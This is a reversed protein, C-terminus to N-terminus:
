FRNTLAPRNKKSTIRIVGNRGKPGYLKIATEDKFVDVAAIDEPDIAAISSVAVGDLYILPQLKSEKVKIAVFRNGTAAVSDKALVPTEAKEAAETKVSVEAIVPVETMTPAINIQAQLAKSATKVKRQMATRTKINELTAKGALAKEKLLDETLSNGRSRATQHAINEKSAQAKGARGNTLVYEPRAFAWVSLALVPLVLLVVLKKASASAPQLMMKVRKLQDYHSFASSLAFVPTGLSHNILTARYVAASNGQQLVVQDALFEHNQKVMHLYMWALPNFWQLACFLQCILLDVWHRQKVHALEHALILKKEVASTEATSNIIIYNFVSFSSKFAPTEIVKCGKLITYSYTLATQRIKGLGVVHRVLLFGLGAAYVMLLVATWNWGSEQQAAISSHQTLGSAMPMLKVEYTYTYFPLLVACALGALLFYRNFQYFTENKLFLWYISIFLLLYLASKFFYILLQEM